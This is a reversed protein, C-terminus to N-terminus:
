WAFQRSLYVYMCQVHVHILIYILMCTVDYLNLVCMCCIVRSNKNSTSTANKALIKTEMYQQAGNPVLKSECMPKTGSRDGVWSFM